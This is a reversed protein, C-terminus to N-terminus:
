GESGLISRLDRAAHIVRLVDVRDQAVRYFIVHKEFGPIAWSRVGALSPHRFSRRRGIEPMAGLKEFTSEAATLFRLAADLSDQAIYRAQEDLDTRVRPRVVVRLRKV